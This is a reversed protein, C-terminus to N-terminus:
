HWEHGGPLLNKVNQHEFTEGRIQLNINDKSCEWTVTSNPGPEVKAHTEAGNDSAAATVAVDHIMGFMRYTSLTHLSIVFGIALLLALGPSQGRLLILMLALLFIKVINYEFLVAIQPPLAPAAMGAYLILFVTIIGSLYPNTRIVSVSKDARALLESFVM